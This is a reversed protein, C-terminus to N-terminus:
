GILYKIAANIQNNFKAETNFIRLGFKKAEKEFYKSYDSVLEGVKLYTEEKKSLTILWDNPTTSKRVDRTFQYKDFKTLFVAKINKQGYKKIMENVFSPAVHHGEIIYDNVNDIECAIATDIAKYTSKAEVKIARIIKASSHQSYFKDNDRTGDRKRLYSYPYKKPWLKKPVYSRSVAELTDCSIWPIRYKRSMRKALTTKGCRLPGGILYIM